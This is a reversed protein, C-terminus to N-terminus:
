NIKEFLKPLIVRNSSFYHLSNCVGEFESVAHLRFLMFTGNLFLTMITMMLLLATPKEARSKM